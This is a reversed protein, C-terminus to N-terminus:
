DSREADRLLEQLLSEREFLTFYGRVEDLDLHGRRARLLARIDDLDRGRSPDNVFAQLKFAILGEASVAHLTGWPTVVAPAAALLRRATTRRAWLFDLRQAGRQYNAVDESRHIAVYGLGTLERELVEAFREDTLLDVDSTARVVGQTALALGGILAFPIRLRAFLAVIEAIQAGLGSFESM